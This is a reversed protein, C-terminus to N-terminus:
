IISKKGYQEQFNFSDKKDRAMGFDEACLFLAASKRKM